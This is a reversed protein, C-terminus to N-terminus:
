RSEQINLLIFDGKEMDWLVAAEKDTSPHTVDAGDATMM